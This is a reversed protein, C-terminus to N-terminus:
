VQNSLYLTAAIVSVSSTIIIGIIFGFINNKIIKKM